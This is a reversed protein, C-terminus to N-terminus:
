SERRVIRMNETIKRAQLPIHIIARVETQKKQIHYMYVDHCCITCYFKYKVAVLYIGIYVHRLLHDILAARLYQLFSRVSSEATSISQM